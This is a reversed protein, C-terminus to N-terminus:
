IDCPVHFLGADHRSIGPLCRCPDALVIKRLGHEYYRDDDLCVFHPIRRTRWSLDGGDVKGWEELQGDDLHHCLGGCHRCLLAFHSDHHAHPRRNHPLSFRDRESKPPTSLSENFTVAVTITRTRSRFECPQRIVFDVVPLPSLPSVYRRMAHHRERHASRWHQPEQVTFMLPAGHLLAVVQM